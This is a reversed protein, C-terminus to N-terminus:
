PARAASRKSIQTTCAELFRRSVADALPLGRPSLRYRQGDSELFGEWVLEQALTEAPDPEEDSLGAIKRAEVPDVGEATRLGLWWTEGLRELAPLTEEWCAAFGESVKRRWAAISRPNGFRTAGIQSVASPGVGVYPGNRWYNLNHACLCATLSFNSIEYPEYGHGCLSARTQRFFRLEENESLRELEGSRLRKTLVTGEEFALSYASVHEPRLALVRELDALWSELSQGPVAYILDVNVRTFGAARAASFATFSQDVTHVRGFLQLIGSDLSQFGISLRNAGLERLLLAKELTLSEPNCEVTVEIASTRFGTCQELGEFLRILEDGPLLSPTGGGVFVTRPKTPARRNAEALLADVTGALDQGVAKVSFFDCYTCKEVCFPLHVYLPTGEEPLLSGAKSVTSSIGARATM